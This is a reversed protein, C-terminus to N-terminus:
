LKENLNAIAFGDSYVSTQATREALATLEVRCLRMVHEGCLQPAQEREAVACTHDIREQLNNGNALDDFHLNGDTVAQLIHALARAIAQQCLSETLEIYKTM